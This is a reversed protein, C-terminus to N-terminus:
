LLNAPQFLNAFHKTDGSVLLRLEAHHLNSTVRLPALKNVMPDSQIIASHFLSSASDVGLLARVMDAGSSQGAITLKSSSGGFAPLVLNLFQMAVITDKVALNTQGTPAM